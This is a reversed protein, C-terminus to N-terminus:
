SQFAISMDHIFHLKVMYVQGDYGDAAYPFFVNGVDHFSSDSSDSETAAYELGFIRSIFSMLNEFDYLFFVLSFLISDVALFIRILLM